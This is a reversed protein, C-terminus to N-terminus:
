DDKGDSEAPANIWAEAETWCSFKEMWTKCFTIVADYGSNWLKEGNTLKPEFAICAPYKKERHGCRINWFKRCEGCTKGKSM